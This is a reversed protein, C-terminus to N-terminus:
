VTILPMETVSVLPLRAVLRSVTVPPTILTSRDPPAVILAPDLSLAERVSLPLWAWILAARAM